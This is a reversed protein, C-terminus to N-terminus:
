LLRISVREGFLRKLRGSIMWTCGIRIYSQGSADVVLYDRPGAIMIKYRQTLFMRLLKASSDFRVSTTVYSNDEFGPLSFGCAFGSFVMSSTDICAKAWLLAASQPWQEWVSQYDSAFFVGIPMCSGNPLQLLVDDAYLDGESVSKVAGEWGVWSWSPFTESRTPMNDTDLSHTWLLDLSILSPDVTERMQMVWIHRLSYNGTQLRKPIGLFANLSDRVYTLQRSTYERILSHLSKQQNFELHHPQM